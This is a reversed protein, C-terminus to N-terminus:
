ILGDRIVNCVEFYGLIIWNDCYIFLKIGFSWIFLDNLFLLVVEIDLLVKVINKVM